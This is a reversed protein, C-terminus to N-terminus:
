QKRKPPELHANVLGSNPYPQRQPGGKDEREMRLPRGRTVKDHGKM